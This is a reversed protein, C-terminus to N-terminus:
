TVGGWLNRTLPGVSELHPSGRETDCGQTGAASARGLLARGQAPSPAGKPRSAVPM